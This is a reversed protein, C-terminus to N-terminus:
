AIRTAMFYTEQSAGIIITWSGSPSLYGGLYTTTTQDSYCVTVQLQNTTVAGALFLQLTRTTSNLRIM